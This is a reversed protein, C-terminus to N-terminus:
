GSYDPGFLLPEVWGQYDNSYPTLKQINSFFLAYPFQFICKAQNVTMMEKANSFFLLTSFSPNIPQKSKIILTCQFIFFICWKYFSFDVKKSLFCEKFVVFKSKITSNAQGKVINCFSSIIIDHSKRLSVTGATMSPCRPATLRFFFRM